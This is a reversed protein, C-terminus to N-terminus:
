GWVSIRVVRAQTTHLDSLWRVVPEGLGPAYGPNKLPPRAGFTGLPTPQPSPTDGEGCPSPDTFPATGGEWFLHIKTRMQPIRVPPLTGGLRVLKEDSRSSDWLRDKPCTPPRGGLVGTAVGSVWDINSHGKSGFAM